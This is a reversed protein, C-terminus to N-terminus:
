PSALNEILFNQIEKEINEAIFYIQKLDVFDIRDFILSKM